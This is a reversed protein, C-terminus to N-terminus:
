LRPLFLGCNPDFSSKLFFKSSQSNPKSEWQPTSACWPNSCDRPLARPRLSLPPVPTSWWQTAGDRYAAGAEGDTDAAQDDHPSSPRQGPMRLEEIVAGRQQQQQRPSSGVEYGWIMGPKPRLAMRGSGSAAIPENSSPYVLVFEELDRPRAMYYYNDQLTNWGNEKNIADAPPVRSVVVESADAQIERLMCRKAKIPPWEQDASSSRKGMAVLLTLRERFNGFGIAGCIPSLQTKLPGSSERKVM